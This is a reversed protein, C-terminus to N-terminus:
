TVSIVTRWLAINQTFFLLFIYFSSKLSLEYIKLVMEEQAKIEHTAHIVSGCEAILNQITEWIPCFKTDFSTFFFENSLELKAM